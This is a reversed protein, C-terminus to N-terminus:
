AKKPLFGRVEGSPREILVEISNTLHAAYHSRWWFLPVLLTTSTLFTAVFLMGAMSLRMGVVVGLVMGFSVWLWIGSKM